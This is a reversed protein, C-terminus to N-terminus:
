QHRELDRQDIKQGATAPAPAPAGPKADLVHGKRPDDSQTPATPRQVQSPAPQARPRVSPASPDPSGAPRQGQAPRAGQRQQPQTQQAEISLIGFALLAPVAIGYAMLRVHRIM